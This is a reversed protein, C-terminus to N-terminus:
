VAPPTVAKGASMQHVMWQAKQLDERVQRYEKLVNSLRQGGGEYAALQEDVAAERRAAEEGQRRLQERICRLAPVSHATYTEALCDQQLAHLKAEFTQLTLLWHTIAHVDADALPGLQQDLVAQLLEAAEQRQAVVGATRPAVEQELADCEATVASLSARAAKVDDVLTGSSGQPASGPTAYWFAAVQDVQTELHHRVAARWQGALAPDVDPPPRLQLPLVWAGGASTGPQSHLLSELSNRAVVQECTPGLARATTQIAAWLAMRRLCGERAARHAQAAADMGEM